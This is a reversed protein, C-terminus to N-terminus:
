KLWKNILQLKYSSQVADNWDANSEHDTAQTRNQLSTHRQGTSHSARQETQEHEADEKRKDIMQYATFTLILQDLNYIWGKENQWAANLAIVLPNPMQMHIETPLRTYGRGLIWSGTDTSWHAGSINAFKGDFKVEVIENALKVSGLSYVGSYTIMKSQM